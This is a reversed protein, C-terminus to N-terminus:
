NYNWHCTPVADASLWLYSVSYAGWYGIEKEVRIREQVWQCQEKGTVLSRSDSFTFKFM